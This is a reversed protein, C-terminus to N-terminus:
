LHIQIKRDIAKAAFSIVYTFLCYSLLLIVYIEFPRNSRASVTKAVGLIEMLTIGYCVSSTLVLNVFNSTLPKFALRIAIPMVVHRFTQFKSYGLATSAEYYGTKVALLGARIVECNSASSNIGLGVIAVVFPDVFIGMQPLGYYFFFLQVLFPTNRLVDVWAFSIGRLAKSKSQRMVALLMGLLFGIVLAGICVQLTVLAGNLFIDQYQALVRFNLRYGGLNM